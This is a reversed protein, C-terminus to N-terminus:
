KVKWNEVLFDVYNKTSQNKFPFIQFHSFISFELKILVAQILIKLSNSSNLYRPIDQLFMEDTSKPVRIARLFIFNTKDYKLWRYIWNPFNGQLRDWKSIRGHREDVTELPKSDFPWTCKRVNMSLKQVSRHRFRKLFSLIM